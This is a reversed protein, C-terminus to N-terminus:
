RRRTLAARHLKPDVERSGRHVRLRRAPALPAARGFGQSGSGDADDRRENMGRRSRATRSLVMCSELSVFWGSPQTRCMCEKEASRIQGARASVSRHGEFPGSQPVPSAREAEFAERVTQDRFEPHRREALALCRDELWANLEALSEFKPRPKFLRGRVFRVQNEVQGKEWGATPTCAVPEVLHHSCMRLFRANWVRDKGSCVGDATTRMNDYIGRVCSGGFFAFAKEHADFVM